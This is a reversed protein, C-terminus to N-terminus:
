GEDETENTFRAAQRDAHFVSLDPELVPRDAYRSALDGIPGRREIEPRMVDFEEVAATSAQGPRDYRTAAHSASSPDVKRHPGAIDDRLDLNRRIM